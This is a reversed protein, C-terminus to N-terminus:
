FILYDNGKKIFIEILKDLNFKKKFLYHKNILILYLSLNLYNIQAIIKKTSILFVNNSLILYKM